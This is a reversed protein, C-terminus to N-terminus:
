PVTVATWTGSYCVYIIDSASAPSTKIYVPTACAGSPTGAGSGILSTTLLTLVAPGNTVGGNGDGQAVHNNALTGDGLQVKADTGGWAGTLTSPLVTAGGVGYSAAEHPAFGGSPDADTVIGGHAVPLVYTGTGQPELVPNGQWQIINYDNLSNFYPAQPVAGFYQVNNLLDTYTTHMSTGLNWTGNNIGGQFINYNINGGTFLIPTTVDWISNSTFTNAWIPGAGEMCVGYATSTGNVDEYSNGVFTNGSIGLGTINTTANLLFGCGAATQEEQIDEFINGNIWGGTTYLEIENQLGAIYGHRISVNSVTQNTPVDSTGQMYIGIGNTTQTSATIRFNQLVTNTPFSRTPYSSYPSYNDTFSFVKGTYSDASLNGLDVWIGDIVSNIKPSFMTLSASAPQFKTALNGKLTVYSPVSVTAVISQTTNGYCTTDVTGGGSLATIAAAIQVDATAGAYSCAPLTNNFNPGTVAGTLTGGTLPL